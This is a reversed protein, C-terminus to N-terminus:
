GRAGPVRVTFTTGRGVTSTVDLDGGHDRVIQQTLALGLGSGSDKTSFFPDFLRPLLDPPIGIGDDEVEIAVRDGDRRTRLTVRGGGKAAVAESANRVLNILCQRIQGADILGHPDEPALETTLKVQKVALDERVFSALANVMVNISEQAVKPKPLRAFALYEETIATLRDVERHISRCLGRAEDANPVETLEDELLETNLGISSLPNRVEHTIMAAMKGVAALRESRVLEREREEVARGMSNFERALDSVEAPGREPIRSAYDGAAIRRAGDRLRRLPRLAIVVWVTIVLGLLVAALGLYITFLRLSHENQELALTTDAVYGDLQESLENARVMLKREEIRLKRLSDAAIKQKDDWGTPPGLPPSALLDDYLPAIATVARELAELRPRTVSFQRPDVEVLKVVSDLIQRTTKLERDRNNRARTLAMRAVQANSEDSLREELYNRLDDQRRALDKSALAFPVYGKGILIVQDEVKTMQFVVSATIVGFTLTLAAFGLLIRASLTRM